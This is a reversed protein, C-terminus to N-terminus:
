TLGSWGEVISTVAETGTIDHTNSAHSRTKIPKWPRRAMRFAMPTVKREDHKGTTPNETTTDEGLKGELKELRKQLLKLSHRLEQNEQMLKPVPQDMAPVASSQVAATDSKNM